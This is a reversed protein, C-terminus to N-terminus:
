LDAEELATEIQEELSADLTEEDPQGDFSLDLESALSRKKQYGWELIDRGLGVLKARDSWEVEVNLTNELRKADDHDDIDVWQNWPLNYGKGSPGRRHYVRQRGTYRAKAVKM